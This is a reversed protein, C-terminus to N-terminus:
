RLEEGTFRIYVFMCCDTVSLPHPDHEDYSRMMGVVFMCCDTLYRTLTTSM